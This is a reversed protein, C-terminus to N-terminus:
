QENNKVQEAPVQFDFVVEWDLPMNPAQPIEGGIANVSCPFYVAIWFVMMRGTLCKINKVRNM